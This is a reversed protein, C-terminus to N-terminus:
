RLTPCLPNLSSAIPAFCAICAALALGYAITRLINIPKAIVHKM